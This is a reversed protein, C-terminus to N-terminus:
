TVVKQLAFALGATVLGMATTLRTPDDFWISLITLTLVLATFLTIGQRTWFRPRSQPNGGLVLNTISRLLLRLLVVVAIVGFTLLLKQGNEPNIGVFKIGFFEM